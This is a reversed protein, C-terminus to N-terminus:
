FTGRDAGPDRWFDPPCATFAVLETREAEPEDPFLEAGDRIGLLVTGGANSATLVCFAAPRRRLLEELYVESLSDMRDLVVYRAGSRRATAILEEPERTLPYYDGPLGSELYYLSPKRSLVAADRPLERGSWAALLLFERATSPLCAFSDGRVYRATCATGRRIEDALRPVGLLMISLVAVVGVPTVVRADWRTAFTRLAEGAYLVLLPLVPLLLREGSWVAPWIMLLGAYMPLFLEATRPVRMRMLWGCAALVTVAIALATALAGAGGTLLRPLHEGVYAAVNDSMRTLMGAAGITGLEPQYPNIHWFQAGYESGGHLRTRLWWWLGPAGAAVAVIVLQTWRRRHALYAGAAILLPLGASRTLYAAAILAAAVAAATRQGPRLRDLAWLAAMTFAWFPVDSLVWRTHELVGPSCAVLLGIGLALGARTRGRVWFFTCVVAIASIGAMMAKLQVWPALGLWLAIALILSFAPPYQTHPPAGPLHLSVYAGEDLLARALVVYVANDGGTHPAPLFMLAALGLHLLALVGAVLAPRRRVMAGVTRRFRREGAVRRRPMSGPPTTTGGSEQLPAVERM